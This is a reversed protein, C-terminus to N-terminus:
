IGALTPHLFFVSILLTLIPLILYILLFFRHKRAVFYLAEDDGLWKLHRDYATKRSRAATFLLKRLQPVRAFLDVMLSFDFKFIKSKELARVSGLRRNFFLGDEGFFDGIILNALERDRDKPKTMQLRGSWVIYFDNSNEGDLYLVEGPELIRVKIANVIDDLIAEDMSSFLVYNRLFAKIISKQDPM